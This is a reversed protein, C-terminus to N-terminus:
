KTRLKVRADDARVTVNAAGNPLTVRTEEESVALTKFPGETIVHADDDHLIDFAGGGATVDLTVAGDQTRILYEGNDDLSTELTLDGDDLKVDVSSFHAKCIEVDADDGSVYLNGGGGEMRIDGDDLSFKFNAGKCDVLEADADDLDLVISGNINKVFYDGDDGRVTLSVGEPVEIEIKYEGEYYGLVNVHSVGQQEYIFLNGNEEKVAVHFNDEGWTWGRTIIKRDIKVHATSRKSGTVFVKGDSSRLDVLGNKNIPYASDLHFGHDQAFVVSVLLLVSLTLVLNKMLAPNYDNHRLLGPFTVFFGALSFGAPRM